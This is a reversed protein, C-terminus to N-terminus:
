NVDANRGILHRDFTQRLLVITVYATHGAANHQQFRVDNVDIGHLGTVFYRNDHHLLHSVMSRLLQATRMKVSILALSAKAGCTIGFLREYSM